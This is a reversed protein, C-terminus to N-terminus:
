YCDYGFFVDDFNLNALDKDNIFFQCVGCDNWMICIKNNEISDMQFLLTNYRSNEPRIDYYNIYYANGLLCSGFFDDYESDDLIEYPQITSDLVIDLEKATEHLLEYASIDYSSLPFMDKKFSIGCEGSFVDDCPIELMALDNKNLSKDISKHYVVKTEENVSIFFQLMGEKALIDNEPVENLNFQALLQMKNGQSDVPYPCSLDWYPLGGFKSEFISSNKETDLNILFGEKESKKNVADILRELDKEPPLEPIRFFIRPVPKVNLQEQRDSRLGAVLMFIGLAMFVIFVGLCSWFDVKPTINYESCLWFLMSMGFSTLVVGVGYLITGGFSIPNKTFGHHVMSAGIIISGVLTPVPTSDTLWNFSTYDIFYLLGYILFILSYVAIGAGIVVNLIRSILRFIKKFKIERKCQQWGDVRMVKEDTRTFTIKGSLIDVLFDYMDYRKKIHHEFNQGDIHMRVCFMNNNMYVIIEKGTIEIVGNKYDYKVDYGNKILKEALKNM